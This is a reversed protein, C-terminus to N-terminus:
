ATSNATGQWHDGEREKNGEELRLTKIVNSEQLPEVRSMEVHTASVGKSRETSVNYTLEYCWSDYHENIKLPNLSLKIKIDLKCNFHM